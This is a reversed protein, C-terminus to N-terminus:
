FNEATLMSQVAAEFAAAEIEYSSSYADFTSEVPMTPHSLLYRLDTGVTTSINMYSCFGSYQPILWSLLRCGPRCFITNAFAAGSPGVICEADAFIAVQDRFSLQAPYVTDFGFRSAIAILKEQNYPRRDNERALFLRRCGDGPQIGLKAIIEQRYEHLLRPNFSYDEAAPWYGLRMNLPEQVMRDITILDRFCFWDTHLPLLTREGAFLEISERCQPIELAPEPVVLPYDDFHSPLSQAFFAAPLIDVLWHYWNTAGSGFVRIGKDLQQAAAKYAIGKGSAGHWYLLMRDAVVAKSHRIYYDPILIRESQLVASSLPSVVAQRLRRAMMPPFVGHHKRGEKCAATPAHSAYPCAPALEGISEAVEHEGHVPWCRFGPTLIASFKLLLHHPWGLENEDVQGAFLRRLVRCVVKHTKKTLRKKLRGWM